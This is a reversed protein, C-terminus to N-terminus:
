VGAVERRRRESAEFGQALLAAITCALHFDAALFPDRRSSEFNLIAVPFPKSNTTALAPTCILSRFRRRTSSDWIDGISARELSGDVQPDLLLGIGRKVNPVYVTSLLGYAFGAAGKGSAPLLVGTKEDAALQIAFSTNVAASEPFVAQIRLKDDADKMMMTVRTQGIPSLATCATRYARRIYRESLENVTQVDNARRLQDCLEDLARLLRRIEHVDRVQPRTDHKPILTLIEGLGYSCVAAVNIWAVAEANVGSLTLAYQLGVGIPLTIRAGKRLTTSVVRVAPGRRLDWLLMALFERIRVRIERAKQPMGRVMALFEGVSARIGRAKQSM